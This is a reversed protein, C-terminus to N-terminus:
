PLADHLIDLVKRNHKHILVLDRGLIRRIVEHPPPPLRIELEHPLPLLQANLEAPVVDNKALGPPLSGGRKALGPPLNGGRKALGPPLRSPNQEYYRRVILRDDEQFRDARKGSTKDASHKEDRNKYKDEKQKGEYKSDKHKSEGDFGPQAAPASTFVSALFLAVLIGQISKM